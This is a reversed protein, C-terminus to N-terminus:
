RNWLGSKSNVNPFTTATTSKDSDMQATERLTDKQVKFSGDEATHPM